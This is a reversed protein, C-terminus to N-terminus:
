TNESEDSRKLIAERIEQTTKKYGFNITGLSGGRNKRILLELKVHELNKIKEDDSYYEDRYLFCVTNCAQEIGGSDRLDSIVPRKDARQEVQRSLQALIVICLKLEKALLKLRNAMYEVEDNKNNHGKSHMLTLYDIIVLKFNNKEHMRRIKQIILNFNNDDCDLIKFNLAEFKHLIDTVKKAELTDPCKKTLKFLSVDSMSALIRNTIDPISMELNVYLVNHKRATKYMLSLGFATKGMGPRAGIAILNGEGFIFHNNLGAFPTEIGDLEKKQLREWWENLLIKTDFEKNKENENDEFSDVVSIIKQIKEESQTEEQFIESIKDTLVTSRYEEKLKNIATPLYVVNDSLETFEFLEETKMNLYNFDFISYEDLIKLMKDFIDRNRKDLFYERKLGKEISEELMKPVIIFKGLIAKELIM